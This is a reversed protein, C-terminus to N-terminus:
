IKFLLIVSCFFSFSVSFNLINYNTVFKGESPDTKQSAAMLTIFCFSVAFVYGHVRLAWM